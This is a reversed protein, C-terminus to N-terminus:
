NMTTAKTQQSLVSLRSRVAVRVFAIAFVPLVVLCLRVYLAFLLSHSHAVVVVACMVALVKTPSLVLRCLSLSLCYLLVM